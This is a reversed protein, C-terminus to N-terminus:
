RPKEPTRDQKPESQIRETLIQRLFNRVLEPAKALASLFDRTKELIEEYRQKWIRADKKADSLKQKLESIEAKATVGNKALQKLQAVEQQTLEVKGTLTRRGMQDIEAHSKLVAKQAKTKDELRHLTVAKVELQEELVELRAAEQAVKFQTVTLHEETSGREGREVDTYGAARMANFFDDQLISYSKRLIPKGKATLM